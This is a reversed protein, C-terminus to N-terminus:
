GIYDFANKYLDIKVNGFNDGDMCVADFRCPINSLRNEATYYLACKSIIKQKKPTIADASSGRGSNKRYKVECFVLFEKDRAVIDIEGARCRYNYQLIEYGLGELYSGAKKEYYAGVARKNVAM